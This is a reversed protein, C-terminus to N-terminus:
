KLKTNQYEGPLDKLFWSLGGDPYVNRRGVNSFSVERFCTLRVAAMNVDETM